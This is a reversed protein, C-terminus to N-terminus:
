TRVGKYSQSALLNEYINRSPKPGLEANTFRGTKTRTRIRIEYSFERKCMRGPDIVKGGKGKCEKGTM